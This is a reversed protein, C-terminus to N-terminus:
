STAAGFTLFYASLRVKGGTFSGSTPTIVIPTDAYMGQPGIIGVNTSGVSVGLTGGFKTAEGSLGVGYSPAGTVAATTRSAVGLLISRNPIVITSTTSAGSLTLEQERVEIGISAGAASKVLDRVSRGDVRAAVQDVTARRSNGGQVLHFIEAGTLATAATLAATEKDAM